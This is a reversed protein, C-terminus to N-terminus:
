LGFLNAVVSTPKSASKSKSASKGRRRCYTRKPGSVYRCTKSRTNCVEQTKSRCRNNISRCYTRKPGSVYRCTKRNACVEQSQGKCRGKRSKKGKRKGGTLYSFGLSSTNM